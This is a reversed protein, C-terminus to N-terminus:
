CYLSFLKNFQTTTAKNALLCIALIRAQFPNLSGASIAGSEILDVGGGSGYIPVVPGFPARSALIVPIGKSVIEAIASTYGPGANGVGTGAIVIAKAGSDAARLISNPDSGPYAVEIDVRTMNFSNEALPLADRRPPRSILDLAGGRFRGVVAGGHFPQSATTHAKRSGRATQVEGDFCILSGMDSFRADAAVTLAQGLNRPGDTDTHDASRQAGTFVVVKNTNNVLEVLFATEEMTDTGHTVVVSDVQPNNVHKLVEAAIRQIQGMELSYSGTVFLDQTTVESDRSASTSNIIDSISISAVSGEGSVLAKGNGSVSKPVSAITGGTGIVHVKTM